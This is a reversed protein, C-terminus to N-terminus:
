QSVGQQFDQFNSEHWQALATKVQGEAEAMSIEGNKVKPKYKEWLEREVQLRKELYAKEEPTSKFDEHRFIEASGPPRSIRYDLYDKWREKRLFTAPHKIFNEETKLVRVERAYNQAAIIVQEQESKKLQKWATFAVKKEKKRPYIQWFKEFKPPYINNIKSTSTPTSSSTSAAMKAEKKGDDNAIVKGNGEESPTALDKNDIQSEEDNFDSTNQWRKEAGLKGAKSRKQSIEERKRSERFMRRCIITGDELRSFVENEELERLYKKVNEEDEGVIKALAKSDIQRGNVTLTGRIDAKFMIGLMEIWLGRAGLSCLRLSFESFWDDWFWQQSPRSDEKFSINAMNLNRM